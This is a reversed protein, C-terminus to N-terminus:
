LKEMRNLYWKEQLKALYNVDRLNKIEEPLSIRNTNLSIIQEAWFTPSANLSFSQYNDTFKSEDTINDSVVTPLGNMQVEILTLPLGEFLSPLVFVDLMNLLQDVDSRVGTFVVSDSLGLKKVKLKLEEELEGRGILFLKSNDKLKKIESFVDLLFLQNKQYALRGVNGIVFQGPVNWDQRLQNRLSQNFAFKEGDISNVMIKVNNHRYNKEGWMWKAADIGCAFLDTASLITLKSFIKRKITTLKNEPVNAMHAHAIRIKIGCIQALLIYFYGWYGQSVHIMDYNNQHLIKYINKLYKVIGNRAPEVHYINCGIKELEEELIGKHDSHVIFDFQLQPIMRVCYDYIVRDAGGGDLAPITHLIKVM